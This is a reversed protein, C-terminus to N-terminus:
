HIMKTIDDEKMLDKVVKTLALIGILNPIVMLGNLNDQLNWIWDVEALSGLFVCICVIIAYIKVGKAKTLYKFNAEGFFYWGIVTSFAFFTLCFAIFINGFVGFGQRFGAQALAAGTLQVGENNFPDYMGSGIVIFATLNLIIFTDIFVGMMAVYGQHTPHDVKAVAHAHPTSGMGAENSFLGRAVGKSVADKIMVGVAGGFVAQPNFAGVFIREFIHPVWGIHTIIVFLSGVIFICAMAPVVKETFSAISSIGGAFILFAILALILGIIPQIMPVTVGLVPLTVPAGLGGEGVVTNWATAIGNSQVACGLFGLSLIIFIAFLVALVKGFVGEFAATIYYVPGGTVHGDDGVKKYKQALVAEAYITAMGFFAALWMWFIAGPGGAAIATSAGVINGTGVQAAIATALAQFSSMGHKGAKESKKLMGGFVANWGKKFGRIQIFGLNFTYWLGTGVLLIALPSLWGLVPVNELAKIPGWLVDNLQAMFDSLMQM